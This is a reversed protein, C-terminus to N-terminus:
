TKYLLGAHRIKRCILWCGLILISLGPEGANCGCGEAKEPLDQFPAAWPERNALAIGTESKVLDYTTILFEGGSVLRMEWIGSLWDATDISYSSGGEMTQELRMATTRTNGPGRLYLEAGLDLGMVTLLYEGRGASTLSVEGPLVDDALFVAQPFRAAVEQYEDRLVLDWFGGLQRPKAYTDVFDVITSESNEEQHSLQWTVIGIQELHLTGGQQLVQTVQESEIEGFASERNGLTTLGKFTPTEFHSEEELIVNQRVWSDETVVVAASWSKFGDAWVRIHHPGPSLPRFFAGTHADSLMPAGEVESQVWAQVSEGAANTVRGILGPAQYFDLVSEIHEAVFEPITEVPPAKSVTVELTYDHAGRSGYAWDTADGYVVYWDAGNTIWFDQAETSELYREGVRQFWQEDESRESQHNWVWGFNAAGAHVSLNHHFARNLSLRYLANSEPESFPYIGSQSNEEWAWSFNRNLDVGNSNRRDFAAVGDPNLMPIVWIEFADVWQRIATNTEYRGLITWATAIAVEFSAWEDGHYAAVLRVCPESPERKGVQDSIVLGYIVRGEVSHGVVSIRALDPYANVMDFLALNSSEPTHYSTALNKNSGVPRLGQVDWAVLELHVDWKAIKDLDQQRVHVHVWGQTGGEVMHDITKLQESPFGHNPFAVLSWSEGRLASSERAGIQWPLVLCLALLLAFSNM